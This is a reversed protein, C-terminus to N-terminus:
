SFDEGSDFRQWHRVRHCNACVMVCKALEAVIVKWSRRRLEDFQMEKKTPDLHHFEFVYYPFRGGCDACQSGMYEVAQKKRERFRETTYANFCVKCYRQTGSSRTANAYFATFPKEERCRGCVRSARPLM